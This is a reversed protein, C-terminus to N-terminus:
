QIAPIEVRRQLSIHSKGVDFLELDYIGPGLKGLPAWAFYQHLDKTRFVVAPKEYCLRIRQGQREVSKILWAPPNSGDVGLYVVLWHLEHDKGDDPTAPRDAPGAGVFVESTARVAAGIDDGSVLFANSAGMGHTKLYIQNLFWVCKEDVFTTPDQLGDQGNTSFVSALPIQRVKGDQPDAGSPNFWGFWLAAFAGIGAFILSLARRSM